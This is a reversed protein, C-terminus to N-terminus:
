YYNSVLLLRKGSQTQPWGCHIGSQNTIIATGAKGLLKLMQNRSVSSVETSPKQELTNKLREVSMWSRNKQSGPLYCYPGNDETDVDTLYLFLKFPDSNNDIHPGRTKTVADNFYLNAQRRKYGSLSSLFDTVSEDQMSQLCLQMNTLHNLTAFEEINFIDVMGADDSQNNRARINVVPKNASAVELYNDSWSYDTQWIFTNEEGHEKISSRKAPSYTDSNFFEFTEQAASLAKSQPVFDTLVCVGYRHLHQKLTDPATKIMSTDFVHKDLSLNTDEPSLRWNRLAIKRKLPLKKLGANTLELAWNLPNLGVSRITKLKKLHKYM